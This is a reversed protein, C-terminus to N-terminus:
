RPAASRFALVLRSDVADRATLSTGVHPIAHHISTPSSCAKPQSSGPTAGRRKSTYTSQSSHSCDAHGNPRSLNVATGGISISPHEDAVGIATLHENPMLGIKGRTALDGVNPDSRKEDRRTIAWLLLCEQAQNTRQDLSQEISGAPRRLVIVRSQRAQSGPVLRLRNHRAYCM